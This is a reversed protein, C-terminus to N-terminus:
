SPDRSRCRSQPSSLFKGLSNTVDIKTPLLKYLGNELQYVLVQTDTVRSMKPNPNAVNYSVPVPLGAVQVNQLKSVASLMTPTDYNSVTRAADILLTMAEWGSLTEEDVLAGPDYTKMASEFASVAGAPTGTAQSEPVLYQDNTFIDGNLQNHLAKFGAPTIDGAPGIYTLNPKSSSKIAELLSTVQAPALVASFCDAGAGIASEVIGAYSPLTYPVEALKAVKGGAAEVSYAISRGSLEDAAFNLVVIATKQCHGLQVAATGLASISAYAGGGLPFVDNDTLEQPNGPSDGLVPIHAPQLYVLSQPMYDTEVEIAASVHDSVALRGCSAM